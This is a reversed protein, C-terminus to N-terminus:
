GNRKRLMEYYWAPKVTIVEEADWIGLNNNAIIVGTDSPNENALNNNIIKM